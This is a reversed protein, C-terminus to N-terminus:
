CKVVQYGSDKRDVIWRRVGLIMVKLPNSWELLTFIVAYKRPNRASKDKGAQPCDSRVSLM